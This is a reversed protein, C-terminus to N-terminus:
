FPFSNSLKLRRQVMQEPVYYRNLMKKLNMKLFVGSNELTRRLSRIRKDVSRRLSLNFSEKFAVGFFLVILPPELFRLITEM